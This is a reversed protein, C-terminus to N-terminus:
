TQPELDFSFTNEGGETVNAKLTSKSNYRAPIYSESVPEGYEGTEDTERVAQIRVIKPGPPAAFMYQGDTIGGQTPVGKGDEPDFVISGSPLPKGDWTVTGQVTIKEGAKRGCSVNLLALCLLIFVPRLVHMM